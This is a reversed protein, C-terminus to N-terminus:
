LSVLSRQPAFMGEIAMDLIGLFEEVDPIVTQRLDSRGLHRWGFASQARLFLGLFAIISRRVRLKDLRQSDQAAELTGLGLLALFSGLRCRHSGVLLVDSLSDSPVLISRPRAVVEVVVGRSPALRSLLHEGEDIVSLEAAILGRV